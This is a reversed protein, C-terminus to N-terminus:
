ATGATSAVARMTIAGVSGTAILRNIALTIEETRTLPLLPHRMEWTSWASTSRLATM